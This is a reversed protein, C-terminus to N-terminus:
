ESAIAFSISHGEVCSKTTTNFEPNNEGPPVRETPDALVLPGSPAPGERGNLPLERTFVM